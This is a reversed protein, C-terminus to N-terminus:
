GRRSPGGCRRARRATENPGLVTVLEGTAIELSLDRLVPRVGYHQTLHVVRIM